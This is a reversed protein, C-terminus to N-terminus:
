PLPQLQPQPKHLKRKILDSLTLNKSKIIAAGANKSAQYATWKTSQQLQTTLGQCDRMRRNPSNCKLSDRSKHACQETGCIRNKSENTAPKLKPKLVILM